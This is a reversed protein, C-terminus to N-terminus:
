GQVVQHPHQHGHSHHGHGGGYNELAPSGQSSGSESGDDRGMSSGVSGGGMGAAMVSGDVSQTPPRFAVMASTPMVVPTDLPIGLRQRLRALEHALGTNENELQRIRDEVTKVYEKKKRRCEKAAERNKQLRREKKAIEVEDLKLLKGPHQPAPSPPPPPAVPPAAPPPMPPPMMVPPGGYPVPYYQSGSAAAVQAQHAAMAQMHLNGQHQNMAAVVERHRAAALIASMGEMGHQQQLDGGPQLNQLIDGYSPRKMLYRLGEKASPRPDEPESGSGDEDRSDDM